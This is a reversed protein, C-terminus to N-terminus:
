RSIEKVLYTTYPNKSIPHLSQGIVEFTKDTLIFRDGKIGTSTGLNLVRWSRHQYRCLEANWFYFALQSPSLKFSRAIAKLEELWEAVVCMDHLGQLRAILKQNAKPIKPIGSWYRGEFDESYEESSILCGAACKLGSATKYKCKGTGEQVSKESQELLHRAVYNFVQQASFNHLTALTIEKVPKPKPKPKPKPEPLRKKDDTTPNQRSIDPCDEVLACFTEGSREIAKKTTDDAHIHWDHVVLRYRDSVDVWKNEILADVLADPDGDWDIGIAIEENTLKGIDGRPTERATMHWLSELVGVVAYPPLGLSKCLKKFKVIQTTGRKM